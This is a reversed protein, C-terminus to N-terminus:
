STISGPYQFTQSVKVTVMITDVDIKTYGVIEVINQSRPLEPKIFSNLWKDLNEASRFRSSYYKYM